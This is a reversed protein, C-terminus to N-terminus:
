MGSWATVRGSGDTIPVIGLLLSNGYCAANAAQHSLFVQEDREVSRRRAARRPAAVSRKVPTVAVAYVTAVAAVVPVAPAIAEVPQQAPEESRCAM